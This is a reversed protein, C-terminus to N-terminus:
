TKSYIVTSSTAVFVPRTAFYIGVAVFANFVPSIVVLPGFQPDLMGTVVQWATGILLWAFFGWWALKNRLCFGLGLPLLPLSLGGFVTRKVWPDSFPPVFLADSPMLMAASFLVIGGVILFIGLPLVSSRYAREPTYPKGM